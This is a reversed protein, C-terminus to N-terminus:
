AVSMVKRRYSQLTEETWPNKQGARLEGDLDDVLQEATKLMLDLAQEPDPVSQIDLFLTLGACSFNGMNDMDFYGPKTASALSFLTIKGTLTPLYYHFVNMEGFQMGAASIAQLLDYSAFTQGSKALVSIVLLHNTMEPEKIQEQAPESAVYNSRVFTPEHIVHEYEDEDIMRKIQPETSDFFNDETAEVARLPRKRSRSEFLMLCLIVAAIILLGIRLYAEM